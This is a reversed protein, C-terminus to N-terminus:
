DWYMFLKLKKATSKDLNWQKFLCNKFFSKVGIIFTKADWTM